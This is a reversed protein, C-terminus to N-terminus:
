FAGVRLEIGYSTTKRFYNALDSMYGRQAWVVIPVLGFTAGTEMRVTSYKFPSDYGTEYKLWFSPDSPLPIGWLHPQLHSQYELLGTIGDVAKRPKGERDAEFTNYEEPRGQLLGNPLFYRLDVYSSLPKNAGGYSRKWVVELYDWGRSIYENAFEPRKAKLQAEEYQTESSITQGNSQHAYAFDFYQAYEGDKRAKGTQPDSERESAQHSNNQAMAPHKIDGKDPVYRWILKPNYSKGIVPSSNRTGWYFGIRGTFALFLGDPKISEPKLIPLKISLTLDAYPVDNSDKTYGATIPEYPQLLEDEHKTSGTDVASAVSACFGCVLLVVVMCPRLCAGRDAAKRRM